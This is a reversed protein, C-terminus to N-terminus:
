RFKISCLNNRSPSSFLDILSLHFKGNTIVNVHFTQQAYLEKYVGVCQYLGHMDLHTKKIEITSIITVALFSRDPKDDEEEGIPQHFFLFSINVM